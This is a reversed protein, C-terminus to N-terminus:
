ARAPEQAVGLAAFTANLAAAIAKKPTKPDDNWNVISERKIARMLHARAMISKIPNSFVITIWGIACHTGNLGDFNKRCINLATLHPITPM